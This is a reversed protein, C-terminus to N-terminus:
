RLKVAHPRRLETERAEGAAFGGALPCGSSLKIQWWGALMGVLGRRPRVRYEGCGFEGLDSSAIRFYKYRGPELRVRELLERNRAQVEHHHELEQRAAALKDILADRLCELEGLGLVRPGHTAAPVSVDIGLTPFASVFAAALERELRAIQLRIAARAAREDVVSSFGVEPLHTADRDSLSADSPTLVAEDAEPVVRM